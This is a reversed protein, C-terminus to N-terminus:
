NSDGGYGYREIASKARGTVSNQLHQMKGNLSVNADHVISKFMSSWDSWHLPDGDFKDLRLKPLSDHASHGCFLPKQNNTSTLTSPQEQLDGIWSHYSPMTEKPKDSRPREPVQFSVAPKPQHLSSSSKVVEATVNNSLVNGRNVEAEHSIGTLPKPIIPLHGVVAASQEFELSEDAFDLLRNPLAEPDHDENQVKEFIAAEAALRAAEDKAKQTTRGEGAKFKLREAEDQVLQRKTKVELQKEFEEMRRQEELALQKAKIEASTMKARIAAVQSSRATTSTKSLSVKVSSLGSSSEEAREDLHANAGLKAEQIRELQEEYWNLATEHEKEPIVPILEDNLDKAEKLYEQLNNVYGRIIAKRGYQEITSDLKKLTNTIRRKVAARKNKFSM